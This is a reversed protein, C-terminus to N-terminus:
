RVMGRTGARNPDSFCYNLGRELHPLRAEMARRDGTAQWITWAGEVMLYEVDAELELRVWGIHNERDVLRHKPKVYTLHENEPPMLMEYFFGEPHQLALLADVYSTLDQEWFKYGKMEHVHDRVWTPNTQLRGGRYAHVSRDGSITARLLRFLDTYPGAEFFTDAQLSVTASGIKQGDRTLLLEKPGLPGGLFVEVPEVPKIPRTQRDAVLVFSGAASTDLTVAFPVAPEAVDPHCLVAKAGGPLSFVSEGMEPKARGIWLASPDAAWLTGGLAMLFAALGFARNM